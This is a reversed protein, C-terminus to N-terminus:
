LNRVHEDPGGDMWRKLIEAVTEIAVSERGQDGTPTERVTVVIVKALAYWESWGDASM